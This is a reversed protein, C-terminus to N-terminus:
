GAVVPPDTPTTELSVEVDLAEDKTIEPNERRAMVFAVAHLVKGMPAGNNSFLEMVSEGTMEEIEIIERVTLVNLDDFDIRIHGNDSM